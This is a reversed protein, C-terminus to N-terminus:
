IRYQLTNNCNITIPIYKVVGRGPGSEHCLTGAYNKSMRLPKKTSTWLANEGKTLFCQIMKPGREGSSKRNLFEQFRNSVLTLSFNVFIQPSKERLIKIFSMVFQKLTQCKEQIM